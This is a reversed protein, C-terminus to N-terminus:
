ARGAKLWADVRNQVEESADMYEEQLWGSLGVWPWDETLGGYENADVYDHLESFTAVTAPVVDNDIDLRIQTKSAEVADRIVGETFRHPVVKAAEIGATHSALQVCQGLDPHMVPCRDEYQVAWGSILRLGGVVKPAHDSAGRAGDIHGDRVLGAYVEETVFLAGDVAEIAPFSWDMDDFHLSIPTLTDATRM